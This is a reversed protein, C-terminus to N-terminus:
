QNMGRKHGACTELALAVLEASERHSKAAAAIEKTMEKVADAKLMLQPVLEELQKMRELTKQERQWGTWTHWAVLMGLVGYQVAVDLSPPEVLQGLFPSSAISIGLLASFVAESNM